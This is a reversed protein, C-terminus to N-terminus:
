LNGIRRIVKVKVTYLVYCAFTSQLPITTGTQFAPTLYFDDSRIIEPQLGKEGEKGSLRRWGERVFDGLQVPGPFLRAELGPQPQMETPDESEAM